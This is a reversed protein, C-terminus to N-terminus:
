ACVAKAITSLLTAQLVMTDFRAYGLMICGALCDDGKCVRLCLLAILDPGLGVCGCRCFCATRLLRSAGMRASACPWM